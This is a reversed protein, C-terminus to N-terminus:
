GSKITRNLANVSVRYRNFVFHGNEGRWGRTVVMRGETRTFTIVRPIECLLIMWYRDEQTMLDEPNMHTVPYTLIEKRKLVAHYERTHIYWTKNIREDASPWTPQKRM